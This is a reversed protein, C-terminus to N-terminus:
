CSLNVVQKLCAPGTSRIRLVLYISFLLVWFHGFYQFYVFGCSMIREGEEHWKVRSRFIIRDAIKDRILKIKAKTVEIDIDIEVTSHIYIMLGNAAQGPPAM